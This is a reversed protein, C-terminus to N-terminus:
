PYWEQPWIQERSPLEAISAYGPLSDEAKRSYCSLWDVGFFYGLSMGGNGPGDFEESVLFGLAGLRYSVTVVKAPFFLSHCFTFPLDTLRGQAERTAVSM